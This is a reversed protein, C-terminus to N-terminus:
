DLELIIFRYEIIKYSAVAIYSGQKARVDKDELNNASSVAMLQISNLFQDKIIIFSNFLM